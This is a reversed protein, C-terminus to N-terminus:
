GGLTKKIIPLHSITWSILVSITLTLTTRYILYELLSYSMSDLQFGLQRDVVNMVLPHFIYIGIASTALLQVVRAVLATPQYRRSSFYQLLWFGSLSALMVNPSLYNDFYPVWGWFTEKGMAFMKLNIFGLIATALMAVAWIVTLKKVWNQKLKMEGILKGALFYGLYPLGSLVFLNLQESDLHFYLLGTYILGFGLGLLTFYIQEKKGAAQWFVRIVPLLLYLGILIFFFYLHGAGGSLLSKLWAQWDLPTKFWYQDWLLYFVSYFLLPLGLRRWTRLATSRISESKGILLQGSLMVFLPISIRSAANILQAIWWVTGGLYDTRGYIPCTLHIAVVGVIAVARVLDLAFLRKKIEPM